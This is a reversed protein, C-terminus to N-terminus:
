KPPPLEGTRILSHRDDERAEKVDISTVLEGKLYFEYINDPVVLESFTLTRCERLANTFEGRIEDFEMSYGQFEGDDGRLDVADQAQDLPSTVVLWKQASGLNFAGKFQGDQTQQCRVVLNECGGKVVLNHGPLEVFHLSAGPQRYCTTTFPPINGDPDVLSSISNLDFCEISVPFRQDPTNVSSFYFSPNQRDQSAAVIATSNLHQTLEAGMLLLSEPNPHAGLSARYQPMLANMQKPPILYERHMIHNVQTTRLPRCPHDPSELTVCGDNVHIFYRTTDGNLDDIHVEGAYNTDSHFFVTSGTVPLGHFHTDPFSGFRSPSATCSRGIEPAYVSRDIFTKLASDRDVKRAMENSSRPKSATLTTAKSCEGTFPLKASIRDM